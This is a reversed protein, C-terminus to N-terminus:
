TGSTTHIKNLQAIGRLENIVQTTSRSVVEMMMIANVGCYIFKSSSVTFNTGRFTKAM